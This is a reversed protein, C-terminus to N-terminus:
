FDLIERMKKVTFVFKELKKGPVDVSSYFKDLDVSSHKVVNKVFVHRKSIGDHITKGLFKKKPVVSARHEYSRLRKIYHRPYGKAILITKTVQDQRDRASNNCTHTRNTRFYCLGAMRKYRNNVNSNYPIIDYKANAKRLVSTVPSRRAPYNFIRINLFKGYVIRSEVNFQIAAPYGSAIIKM